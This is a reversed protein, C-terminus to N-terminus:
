RRRSQLIDKHRQLLARGSSPRSPTPKSTHFDPANGRSAWVMQVESRV